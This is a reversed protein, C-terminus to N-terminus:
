TIKSNMPLLQHAAKIEGMSSDFSKLPFYRREHFDRFFLLAAAETPTAAAKAACGAEV